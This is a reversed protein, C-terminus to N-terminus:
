PPTIRMSLSEKESLIADAYCPTRFNDLAISSLPTTRYQGFNIRGIVPHMRRPPPASVRM